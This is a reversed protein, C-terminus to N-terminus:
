CTAQARQCCETVFGSSPSRPTGFVTAGQCAHLRTPPAVGAPSPVAAKPLCCRYVSASGPFMSRAHLMHQQWSGLCSCMAGCCVCCKSVLKTAPATCNRDLAQCPAATSAHGAQATTAVWVASHLLLGVCVVVQRSIADMDACPQASCSRLVLAQVELSCCSCYCPM